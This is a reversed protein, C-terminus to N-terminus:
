VYSKLDITTKTAWFCRFVGDFLGISEKSIQICTKFSFWEASTFINCDDVEKDEWWKKLQNFKSLVFARRFINFTEHFPHSSEWNVFFCVFVVVNNFLIKDFLFNWIVTLLLEFYRRYVFDHKKHLNSRWIPMFYWRISCESYM